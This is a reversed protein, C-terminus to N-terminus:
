WAVGFCYARSLWRCEACEPECGLGPHDHLMCCLVVSVAAAHCCCLQCIVVRVSSRKETSRATVILVKSHARMQWKVVLGLKLM